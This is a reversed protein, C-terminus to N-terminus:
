AHGPGNHQLESLSSASDTVSQGCTVRTAALLGVGVWWICIAWFSAFMSYTSVVPLFMSLLALVFPENKDNVGCRRVWHLLVWAALVFLTAGALGTEALIELLWHHAHMATGGHAQWVNNTPAFAPYAKRFAHAGVGNFPHTTFMHWGAEWIPLRDALAYDLAQETGQVVALTRAMRQQFGPAYHWLVLVLMVSAILPSLISCWRRSPAHRWWWAFLVFAAMLWASRTGTLAIVLLASLITVWRLLRPWNRVTVLLFPLLFALVPGLKIHGAGFIGSLRVADTARGIIDVGFVYQFLADFVWFAALLGSWRILRDVAAPSRVIAVVAIASLWFRLSALAVQWTKEPWYSDMASIVVMWLYALYVVGLVWIAPNIWFVRQGKIARQVITRWFFTRGLQWLGMLSLLLIPLEALRSFPLLALTAVLLMVVVNEARSLSQSDTASERVSAASLPWWRFAKAVYHVVRNPREKETM